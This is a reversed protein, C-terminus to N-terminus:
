MCMGHFANRHCTQGVRCIHFRTSVYARCECKKDVVREPCRPFHVRPLTVAAAQQAFAAVVCFVVIASLDLRTTKRM